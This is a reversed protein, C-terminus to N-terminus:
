ANYNFSPRGPLRDDGEASTPEFVARASGRRDDRIRQALADTKPEPRTGLERVLTQLLEYKERRSLNSTQVTSM